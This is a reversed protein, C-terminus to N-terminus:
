RPWIYGDCTYTEGDGGVVHLSRPRGCTCREDRSGEKATNKLSVDVERHYKEEEPAAPAAIRHKCTNVHVAAEDMTAFPQFINQGTCHPCHFPGDPDAPAPTDGYLEWAHEHLLRAAEPPLDVQPFSFPAAPAPLSAALARMLCRDCWYSYPESNCQPQMGCARRHCEALLAASATDASMEAM